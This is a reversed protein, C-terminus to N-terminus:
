CDTPGVVKEPEDLFLFDDEIPYGCGNRLWVYQEGCLLIVCEENGALKEALWDSVIWAQAWEADEGYIEEFRFVPSEYGLPNLDHDLTEVHLERSPAKKVRGTREMLYWYDTEMEQAKILTDVIRGVEQGVEKKAATESLKVTNQNQM